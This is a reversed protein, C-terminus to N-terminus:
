GNVAITITKGTRSLVKHSGTYPQRLPPQTRDIRLFIHSSSQLSPHIYVRDTCHASTAVPNLQQMRNSLNSIYNNDCFPLNSLEIMDSPLRLNTGYVIEACSSQLDEKVATRIGLLIIPVIESLTDNEHAKIASKLPRHLRKVIKNSIPYTTTLIKETGLM